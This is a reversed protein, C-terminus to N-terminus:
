DAKMRKARGCDDVSWCLFRGNSYRPWYRAAQKEFNEKRPPAIFGIDGMHSAIRIAM